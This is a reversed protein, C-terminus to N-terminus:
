CPATVRRAGSKRDGARVGPAELRETEPLSTRLCALGPEQTEGRQGETHTGRRIQFIGLGLDCLGLAPASSPGEVM